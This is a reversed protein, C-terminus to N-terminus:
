RLENIRYLPKSAVKKALAGPSASRHSSLLKILQQFHIGDRPLGSVPAGFPGTQRSDNGYGWTRPLGTPRHHTPPAMGFLFASGFSVTPSTAESVKRNRYSNLQESPVASQSLCRKTAKCRMWRRSWMPLLSQVCLISSGQSSRLPQDSHVTDNETLAYVKANENRM